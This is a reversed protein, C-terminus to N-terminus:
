DAKYSHKHRKLRSQEIWTSVKQILSFTFEPARYIAVNTANDVQSVVEGTALGALGSLVVFLKTLGGLFRFESLVLLDALTEPVGFQPLNIVIYAFNLTNYNSSATSCSMIIMAPSMPPTRSSVSKPRYFKMREWKHLQDVVDLILGM